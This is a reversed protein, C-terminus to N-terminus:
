EIQKELVPLHAILVSSAQKHMTPLTWTLVNWNRDWDRPRLGPNVSNWQRDPAHSLRWPQIHSVKKDCMGSAM